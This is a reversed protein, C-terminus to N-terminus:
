EKIIKLSGMGNKWRNTVFYIGIPLATIDIKKFQSWPAIYDKVVFNGLVDRIEMIGADNQVPFQLTVPGTTPNPYSSVKIFDTLEQHSTTLCPCSSTTDCGLFYNPHNPITNYNYTPLLINHQMVNCFAGPLYPYEITGFYTTANGTAIYIKGDPALQLHCLGVDLGLFGPQYFGDYVAVNTKTPAIPYFALNYQHISDGTSIYIFNSEASFEVGANFTNSLPIIVSDPNSFTGTCRDFDMIELMGNSTLMPNYVAFKNGDPSFKAQGYYWPMWSHGIDQTTVSSIGAPTLLIKYITNTYAKLCVIWWDQGNAHKCAVIKGPVLSDNIIVQNKQVVAGLGGNLSMDITSHYLHFSLVGTGSPWNDWTSHFLDYLSISDPRNLILAAQPIFLGDYAYTTFDSPNLGSGNQMTDHTADAIYVGNTYFLLNGQENSIIANTHRFDMELSDYSIFPIGTFFNSVSHGYPLGGWSSYGSIWYNQIGQNQALLWSSNLIIISFLVAAIKKM